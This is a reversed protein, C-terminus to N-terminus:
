QPRDDGNEALARAAAERIARAAAKSRSLGWRAALADLQVTAENALAVREAPPGSARSGSGVEARVRAWDIQEPAVVAGDRALVRLEREGRRWAALARARARAYSVGVSRGPDPDITLTDPSLLRQRKSM